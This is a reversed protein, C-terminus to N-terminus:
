LKEIAKLIDDFWPVLDQTLRSSGSWHTARRCSQMALKRVVGVRDFELCKELKWWGSKAQHKVIMALRICSHFTGFVRLYEQAQEESYGYAFTPLVKAILESELEPFFPTYEDALLWAVDDLPHRRGCHEWDIWFVSGDDAVIANGPRADWKILTTQDVRILDMLMDSELAPAPVGLLAGLRDASSIFTRLWQSKDGLVIISQLQETVKGAEHIASLSNLAAGLLAGTKVVDSGNLRESLRHNGMDQQILVHERCAILHPVPAAKGNLMRLVVSELQARRLSARKTVIVSHQAVKVRVADRSSGGPFEVRDVETKLLDTCIAKVEDETVPM